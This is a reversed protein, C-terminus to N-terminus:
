SLYTTLIQLQMSVLSSRIQYCNETTGRGFYLVYVFKSFELPVIFSFSFVIYPIYKLKTCNCLNENIHLLSSIIWAQCAAFILNGLKVDKVIAKKDSAFNTKHENRLSVAGLVETENSWLPQHQQQKQLPKHHYQQQYPQQQQQQYQPYQEHQQQQIVNANM